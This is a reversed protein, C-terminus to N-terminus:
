EIFRGGREVDGVRKGQEMSQALQGPVSMGDDHGQVMEVFNALETVLGQEETLAARDAGSRHRLDDGRRRHAFDKAHIEQGARM